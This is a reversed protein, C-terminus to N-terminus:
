SAGRGQIKLFYWKRTRAGLLCHKRDTKGPQKRKPGVAAVDANISATALLSNVAKRTNKSPQLLFQQLQDIVM